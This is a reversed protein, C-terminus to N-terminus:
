IRFGLSIVLSRGDSSWIGPGPYMQPRKTFYSNDFINQFSARLTLNEYTYIGQLDWIHYSPVLGVAGSPPPSKTNLADSFSESVFQHQLALQLSGYSATLGNRSIWEPVAEVHNGEIEENGESGAVFGNLYRARMWSSSTYFSLAFRDKKLFEWDWLLEVGATGSDGINSKQILTNDDQEVLISGIRKGIFTYFLTANLHMSEKPSLEWGIESNYGFSHTLNPNIITLPNGPIIDQFLVPRNAQSIGAYLRNSPSFQYNANIGLTVFDYEIEQPVQEAEVYSITGSMASSGNEIRLGPSISFRDNLHFQNELSAAISQSKLNIDRPFDGVVSLDYDTGTTGKGRQRRDFSNNFYRVSISLDNKVSGLTYGHLIRAEFTRTHYNDIDVNRPAYESTASNITDPVNALADFTVSSRQGFIGSGVLSFSTNAALRGELTLVPVWIEPSYYNRSRTAQTPDEKFQADTLPGPIRYLFISRSLEAKAKLRDNIQYSIEAHQADSESKGGDRYGNSNRKQYYGFYSFKGITGGVSTYNSLLGFSGVSSINELSFKKIPDPKKLVYNLMGGFQQGYQLAATGRILEIREVAEMPMSYHSAPYGYIDTNIMVGNQRVNFEWSRHGDLGRVSVNIQNGTGDMDYIFASPIKAFLSRGTKEALNTALGSLSIVESKRGGVVMLGHTSPLSTVPNQLRFNQIKIEELTLTKVTDQQAFAHNSLWYFGMLLYIYYKYKM